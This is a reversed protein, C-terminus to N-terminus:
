ASGDAVSDPSTLTRPATVAYGVVALTSMTKQSRQRSAHM